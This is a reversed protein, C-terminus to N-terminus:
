VKDCKELVTTEILSTLTGGHKKLYAEVKENRRLRLLFGVAMRVGKGYKPVGGRTLWGEERILRVLRKADIPKLGVQVQRILM